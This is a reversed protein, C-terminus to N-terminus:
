MSGSGGLLIFLSSVFDIILRGLNSLSIFYRLQLPVLLVDLVLIIVAVLVLLVLHANRVFELYVLIVLNVLFPSFNTSDTKASIPVLNFKGLLHSVLKM